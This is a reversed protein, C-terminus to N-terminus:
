VVRSNKQAARTRRYAKEVAAELNTTDTMPVLAPRRDNKEAKLIELDMKRLLVHQDRETWCAAKQLEAGDDKEPMM